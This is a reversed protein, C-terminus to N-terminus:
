ANNKAEEGNDKAPKAHVVPAPLQLRPLCDSWCCDELPNLPPPMITSRLDCVIRM